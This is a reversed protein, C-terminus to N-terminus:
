KDISVLKIIWTLPDIEFPRVTTSYNKPDAHHNNHWAEGLILPFLFVNNKSDDDTAHNTYGYLHGFYNFNSQSLQILFSPLIWVFYFLELNVSAFITMFGVLLLIYWKHIFVNFKTMIDKVLFIQMKNEEQKKYHGFGFLKYGLYKPSHPDKITDSYAHHQRHLYVWGLISGRGALIAITTFVYKLFPHYFEFSKHSYYRHLTMWVGLINFVYFSILMIIINGFTFMSINFLGAIACMTISLTLLNINRATSGFTM